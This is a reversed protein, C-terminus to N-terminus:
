PVSVNPPCGHQLNKIDYFEGVAAFANLKNESFLKMLLVRELLPVTIMVVLFMSMFCSLTQFRKIGYEIKCTTEKEEYDHLDRYEGEGM